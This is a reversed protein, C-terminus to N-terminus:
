GRPFPTFKDSEDLNLADVFARFQAIATDLANPHHADSGLYFKCGCKKAIHYPRLINKLNEADYQFIPFNLEFGAKKEALKSFLDTFTADSIRELVQIHDSPQNNAILSCTLHAIGIKEFPLDMDLLKQLREVYLFARRELSHDTEDITFNPMHLHTTPIIVFDFQEFRKISIGLRMSKDLETECGFYFKVSKSEPLPLAQRLHEYNQQQYFRFNDAGPITEDWFHDTLCIDLYGNQEAYNLMKITTQMPDDSCLSLHSHIHYDHDIMYKM